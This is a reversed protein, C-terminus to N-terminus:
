EENTKRHKRWFTRRVPMQSYRRSFEEKEQKEATFKDVMLRYICKMSSLVETNRNLNVVMYFSYKQYYPILESKCLLLINKKKLSERTM